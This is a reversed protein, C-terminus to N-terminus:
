TAIQLVKHKGNSNPYTKDSVYPKKSRITTQVACKGGIEDCPTPSGCLVMHCKKGIVDDPKIGIRSYFSENAQTICFTDPDILTLNDTISNIIKENFEKSAMLQAELYKRETIDRAHEIAQTTKGKADKIPYSHVEFIRDNGGPASIRKQLIRAEGHEFVEKVHCDKCMTKYGYFLEYCYRNIVKKLPLKFRSLLAQNVRLIRFERDYIAMPDTVSDFVRKLFQEDDNPM